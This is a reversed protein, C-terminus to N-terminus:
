QETSYFTRELEESLQPRGFDDIAIDVGRQLCHEAVDNVGGLVTRVAVELATAEDNSPKETSVDRGLAVEVFPEDIVIKRTGAEDQEISCVQVYKMTAFKFFMDGVAGSRAEVEGAYGKVAEELCLSYKGDRINPTISFDTLLDPEDGSTEDGRLTTSIAQFLLDDALVKERFAGLEETLIAKKLGLDYEGNDYPAPERPEIM